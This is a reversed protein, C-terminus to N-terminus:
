FADILVRAKLMLEDWEEEPNSMAIIAGGAGISVQNNAFVATRIVINLDAAGNSSLYGIAGSYVGRASPELKDIIEMTRIKPAGTMSGGPFAARLCDVATVDARLRGTITSVLQHVTAYSEIHMLKPVRVSGIECVRGLDNRLLDVIMLNESHNKIDSQLFSRLRDDEEKTGGRKVTGKIPKTEVNGNEDIKLFREPSSCAVSVQPFKLFASYPAPNFQRLKLYYHIPDVDVDSTFKNTLCIEYSDGETIYKLCEDINTLYQERNVEPQFDVNASKDPEVLLKVVSKFRSKMQTFWKLAGSEDNTKGLYLLYVEGNVHDIVVAKDVFLLICDPLNSQYADGGECISKLEYGFYGIFGCNFAFPLPPSDVNLEAIRKNLYDFLDIHSIETSGNHHTILKRESAQYELLQANASDVAAMISFRGADNGTMNSDLWVAYQKGSFECSFLAEPDFSLSSKSVFLRM